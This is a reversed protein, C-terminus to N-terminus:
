AVSPREEVEEYGDEWVPGDRPEDLSYLRDQPIRRTYGRTQTDGRTTRLWDPYRWRMVRYMYTQIAIGHGTEFRPAYRVGVELMYDALEQFRHEDLFAGHRRLADAAAKRSLGLLAEGSFGHKELAEAATM